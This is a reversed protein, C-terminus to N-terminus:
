VWLPSQCHLVGLSHSVPMSYSYSGSFSPLQCISSSNLEDFTRLRGNHTIDVLIKFFRTWVAPEEFGFTHCTPTRGCRLIPHHLFHAELHLVMLWWRVMMICVKFLGSHVWSELWFDSKQSVPFHVSSLEEPSVSRLPSQRGSTGCVKEPEGYECYRNHDWLLAVCSSCSFRPVM